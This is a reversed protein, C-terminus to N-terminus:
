QGAASVSMPGNLNKTFRSKCLGVELFQSEKPHILANVCEYNLIYKLGGTTL